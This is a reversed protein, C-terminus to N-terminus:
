STREIEASTVDATGFLITLKILHVKLGRVHALVKLGLSEVLLIELNGQFIIRQANLLVRELPKKGDVTERSRKDQASNAVLLADTIGLCCFILM